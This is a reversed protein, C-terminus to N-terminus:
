NIRIVLSRTNNSEITEAVAGDADSVAIINYVGPATGSPITVSMSGSSTANPGLALVTREGLPQDSADFTINTSLYIRTTSAGSSGGGANKATDTVSITAGALASIPATLGSETLDPGVKTIGYSVNNTEASEAVANTDDSSVLIYYTGLETGAPITVTTSGANTLGPGLAPVSRSGLFTDTSDLSYNASLYLSTTSPGATNSGQNKVTDTVTLPFGAGAVTPIGTASEILDPGIKIATGFKVNNLEQTEQVAGAGDAKAFVYYTGAVTDSPITLLTTGTNATNPALTGVSRTGLPTDADDLLVNASLYFSTTSASASGAGQNKTADTVSITSGATATSPNTLTQIVLDPGVAITSGMKVNNSENSETVTAAVDAKALLYYNGVGINSPVTFV